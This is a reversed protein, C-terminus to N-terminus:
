TIKLVSNGNKFIPPVKYTEFSTKKDTDIIEYIIDISKKAIKDEDQKIHTFLNGNVKEYDEDVTVISINKCLFLNRCKMAFMIDGLLGYELSVLATMDKNIDLYSTLIEVNRTIEDNHEFVKKTFNIDLSCEGLVPLGLENIKNYFGTKRQIISSIGSEDTTVLGIRRHGNNYLNDVLMSIALINDTYVSPVPVGDLERDILVVPFGEVVLKLIKTNYHKAHSPMIILGEVGMSLLFDIEKGEREQSTYSFRFCLTYGKEKAYKDMAYLMELGFPSSVHEFIVGILRYLKKPSQFNYKNKKLIDFVNENIFTGVGSVRRVIKESKLIAMSKKVTIISVNYKKAIEEETSIKENPKLIGNKIDNIISEYVKRYLFVKKAM